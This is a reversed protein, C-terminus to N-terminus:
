RDVGDLIRVREMSGLSSRFSDLRSQRILAGQQADRGVNSYPGKLGKKNAAKVARRWEWPPVPDPESWLGRGEGRAQAESSSDGGREEVPQSKAYRVFHWALGESILTRGVDNGECFLRGVPRGYRDIDRVEAETARGLCLAALRRGSARGFPQAKEPADIGALRLDARGGDHLRIRVTDGDKVREVTGSLTDGAMPASVRFLLIVACAALRM